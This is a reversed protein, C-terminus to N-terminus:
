RQPSVVTIHQTENNTVTIFAWFRVPMLEPPTVGPNFEIITVRVAGVRSPFDSFMAYAPDGNLEGAPVYVIRESLLAGHETEMRITFTSARLAYIRLTNRFREDTPVGLLTIPTPRLDEGFVVPIETGFNTAARSIDFVRLQAVLHQRQEPKILLLVGPRGTPAPTDEELPALVYPQVPCLIPCDRYLPGAIELSQDTSRNFLRLESAFRAGHAGAVPETFIPLLVLDSDETSAPFSATIEPSAVLPAAFFMLVAVAAFLRNM